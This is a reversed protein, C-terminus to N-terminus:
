ATCRSTSHHYLSMRMCTVHKVSMELDLYMQFAFRAIDTVCMAFLQMLVKVPVHTASNRHDTTAIGVIQIDETKEIYSKLLMLIQM